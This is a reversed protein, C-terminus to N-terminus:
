LLGFTNIEGTGGVINAIDLARSLDILSKSTTSVTKLGELNHTEHAVSDGTLNIAYKVIDNTEYDNSIDAIGSVFYGSYTHVVLDQKNSSLRYFILKKKYISPSNYTGNTNNMLNQWAQVYQLTKGDEHEYMEFSINGIDNQKAYYWFSNGTVAKDTEITSFPITMNVVRSSLDQNINSTTAFLIEADRVGDGYVASPNQLGETLDPLLVRWLYSRMPSESRKQSMVDSINFSM